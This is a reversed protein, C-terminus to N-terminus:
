SVIIPSNGNKDTRFSESHYFIDNMINDPVPVLDYNQEKDKKTKPDIRKMSLKRIFKIINKSPKEYVVTREGVRTKERMM